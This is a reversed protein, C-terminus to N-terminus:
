QPREKAVAAAQVALTDDLPTLDAPLGRRALARRLLEDAFAPNKPLLSGHLYTGFANARVAGERGDEGNNGYGQIVRGLAAQGPGLTTKGSHNEFGVIEGWDSDIVVNGILRDPSGVTDADFIGVGPLEHGDSTRFRHGFLQYIGCVALVVLGDDVAGRLAAAHRTLDAAVAIQGHDQGGGGFVLDATHLDLDDGVGVRRVEVGIGRWRLRQILTIINGHDGYINMESPYLHVLTITM